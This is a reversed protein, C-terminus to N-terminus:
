RATLSSWLGTTSEWTCSMGIANILTDGVEPNDVLKSIIALARDAIPVGTEREYFVSPPETVGAAKTAALIEPDSDLDSALGAAVEARLQAVNASRRAELSLL